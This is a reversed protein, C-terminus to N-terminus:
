NAKNFLTMLKAYFFSIFYACFMVSILDPLNFIVINKLNDTQPTKLGFEFIFMYIRLGTVYIATIFALILLSAKFARKKM